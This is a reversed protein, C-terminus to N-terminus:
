INMYKKFAKAIGENDVTDTVDKAAEQIRKAANGMAIGHGVLQLMEIDNDGDGFAYTDDKDIKLHKYLFECATGKSFGELHVDMRIDEDDGYANIAWEKPLKDKAAYLDKANGFVAAISNIKVEELYDQVLPTRTLDETGEYLFHHRKLHQNTHSSVWSGYYGGLSCSGNHEKYIQLQDEIQEKTFTNNVLVEDKFEIYHGDSCIYGDFAMDRVSDPIRTRATAVVIYNGQERFTQLVRRTEMSPHLMGKPVNVMTGDIDFFAIKTM